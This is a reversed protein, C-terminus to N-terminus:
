YQDIETGLQLLQTYAEMYFPQKEFHKLINFTSVLDLPHEQYYNWTTDPIHYTTGHGQLKHLLCKSFM